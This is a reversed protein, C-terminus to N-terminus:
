CTFIYFEFSLIIITHKWFDTSIHSINAYLYMKINFMLVDPYRWELKNNTWYITCHLTVRWYESYSIHTDLHIYKTTVQVKRASVPSLNETELHVYSQFSERRIFTIFDEWAILRAFNATFRITQHGARDGDNLTSTPFSWLDSHAPKWFGPNLNSRSAASWGLPSKVVTKYEQVDYEQMNLELLLLLNLLYMVLNSLRRKHKRNFKVWLSSLTNLMRANFLLQIICCVLMCM